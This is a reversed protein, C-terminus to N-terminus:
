FYPWLKRVAVVLALALKQIMPYRTEADQLAKSLYYVLQETAEDARVLAVSLAIESIALYLMLPEKDVPKVLLPPSSLYEKLQDFTARCEDNWVFPIKKKLLKFFPRCKDSSRPAFRNLAANRGTLRQIDRKTRPELM